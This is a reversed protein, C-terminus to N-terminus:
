EELIADFIMISVAVFVIDYVVLLKFWFDASETAGLAFATAEVSAILLPIAAPLLLVPLMVERMRTHSAIASFLTGVACFGVAGLVIVLILLWLRETIDVNFFVAFIPLIFLDATLMFFLNALFKGLFVSAADVPAM